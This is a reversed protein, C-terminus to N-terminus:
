SSWEIDGGEKKLAFNMAEEETEFAHVRYHNIVVCWNEFIDQGLEYINETITGKGTIPKKAM